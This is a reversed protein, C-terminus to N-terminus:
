GLRFFQLFRTTAESQIFPPAVKGGARLIAEVAQDVNSWWDGNEDSRRAQIAYGLAIRAYTLLMRREASKHLADRAQLATVKSLWEHMKERSLEKGRPAPFFFSSMEECLSDLTIVRDM